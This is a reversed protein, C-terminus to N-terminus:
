PCTLPPRRHRDFRLLPQTGWASARAPPGGMKALGHSLGQPSAMVEEQAPAKGTEAWCAAQKEAAPLERSLEQLRAQPAAVWSSVQKGVEPLKAVVDWVASAVTALRPIASM